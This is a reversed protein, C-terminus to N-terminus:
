TIVSGQNNGASLFPPWRRILKILYRPENDRYGRIVDHTVLGAIDKEDFELMDKYGLDRLIPDAVRAFEAPDDIDAHEPALLLSEMRTALRKAIQDRYAAQLQQRGDALAAILLEAEIQRMAGVTGLYRDLFENELETPSLKRLEAQGSDFARKAFESAAAANAKASEMGQSIRNALARSNIWARINSQGGFYLGLFLALAIDSANVDGRYFFWWVLVWGAGFVVLSGVGTVLTKRRRQKLIADALPKSADISQYLQEMNKRHQRDGAMEALIRNEKPSQLAAVKAVLDASGVGITVLWSLFGGVIPAFALFEM